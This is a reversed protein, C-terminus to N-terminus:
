TGEISFGSTVVTRGKVGPTPRFIAMYAEGVAVFKTRRRIKIGELDNVKIKPM